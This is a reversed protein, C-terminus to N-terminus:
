ALDYPRGTVNSATASPTEARERIGETGRLAGTAQQAGIVDQGTGALASRSAALWSAPLRAVRGCNVHDCDTGGSSLWGAATEASM